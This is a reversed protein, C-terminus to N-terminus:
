ITESNRPRMRGNRATSGIEKVLRDWLLKLHEVTAGRTKEDQRVDDDDMPNELFERLKEAGVAGPGKRLMSEITPKGIHRNLPQDVSGTEERYRSGALKRNGCRMVRAVPLLWMVFFCCPAGVVCWAFVLMLM